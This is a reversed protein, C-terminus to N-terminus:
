VWRRVVLRLSGDERQEQEVVNFGQAQTHELVTKLAYERLVQCRIKELREELQSSIYEREVTGGEIQAWDAVMEYHGQVARVFGITYEGKTRVAIDVDLRKEGYGRINGGLEVSYGMERLCRVLLEKDQIRTQIRSFHSM